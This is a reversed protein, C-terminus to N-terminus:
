LYKGCEKDIELRIDHWDEMPIHIADDEENIDSLIILEEEHDFTIRNNGIFKVTNM